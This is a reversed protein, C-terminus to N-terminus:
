ENKEDEKVIELKIFDIDGRIIELITAIDLYGIQDDKIGEYRKNLISYRYIGFDEGDFIVRFMGKNKLHEKFLNM